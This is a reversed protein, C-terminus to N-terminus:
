DEMVERWSVRLVTRSCSAGANLRVTQGASTKVNNACGENNKGVLFPQYPKDQMSYFSSGKPADFLNYGFAANVKVGATYTLKSKNADDVQDAIVISTDSVAGGTQTNVAMLYGEAEQTACGNVSIDPVYILYQLQKATQTLDTIVREGSVPLDEYWSLRYDSSPPTATFPYQTGGLLKDTVLTRPSGNNSCATALARISRSINEKVFTFSL